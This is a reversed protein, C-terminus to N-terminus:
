KDNRDRMRTRSLSWCLKGRMQHPSDMDNIKNGAKAPVSDPNGNGHSHCFRLKKMKYVVKEAISIDLL